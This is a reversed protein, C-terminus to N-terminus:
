ISVQLDLTLLLSIIYKSINSRLRAALNDGGAMRIQKKIFHRIPVYHHGENALGMTNLVTARLPEFGELQNTKIM